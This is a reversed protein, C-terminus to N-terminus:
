GSSPPVVEPAARASEILALTAAKQDLEGAPPRKLVIRMTADYAEEALALLKRKLREAYPKPNLLVRRLAEFRRALREAKLREREHDIRGRLDRVAAMRLCAERKANDAMVDRVLVPRALSRIRPGADAPSPPEVPAPPICPIFRVDWTEPHALDLEYPQSRSQTRAGQGRAIAQPNVEAAEVVLLKMVLIEFARLSRAVVRRAGRTFLGAIASPGGFRDVTDALWTRTNTWLQLIPNPAAAEAFTM